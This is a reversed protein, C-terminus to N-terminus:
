QRHRDLDRWIPRGLVLVSIRCSTDDDATLKSFM